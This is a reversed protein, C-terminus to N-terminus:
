AWPHTAGFAALLPTSKAITEDLETQPDSDITIAGGTGITAQGGELVATRIVVSLDVSGDRSFYGIAGSYVGREDPELADLMECTRKKPAGTMSGPPFLAEAARVGSVRIRSRITTVLQHVTAYSEVRMLAPVEVSGPESIRGLDNRLLDVIMLNEARTKPDAALAAAIEGDRQPDRRATGKIPKTEAVVGRVQLFREPSCSLIERTGAQHHGGDRDHERTGARKREDDRDGDGFRLYAAYPAANARRLARYAGLGDGAFPARLRYTYCAEYSDGALLWGRIEGIHALYTEREISAVATQIGGEAYTEPTPAPARAAAGRVRAVADRIWARAAEADPGVAVVHTVHELHDVVLFRSLHVLHVAGPRGIGSGYEIAGVYGGVFPLADDGAVPHAALRQEIEDWSGRIEDDLPGDPAGLISYRGMGYAQQASDLWVASPADAYLALFAGEADDLDLAERHVRWAGVEGVGVDGVGGFSCSKRSHSRFLTDKRTIRTREAPLAPLGPSAPPAPVPASGALGLFTALMRAGDPTAISEPHFQVGSWGRAEDVGAMAVGDPTRATIRFPAPDAVALSHYRVAEFRAPVGDFMASGDHAVTDVQGHAPRPARVVRGGAAVAMQQFGFCVGFVPVEAHALIALGRGSDAPDHPDGPGPGLVIHTYRGLSELDVDESQVLDPRVGTVQWLVQEISGTYSDHNDVLLVRM